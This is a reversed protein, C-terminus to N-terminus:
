DSENADHFADAVLAVGIIATLVIGGAILAGTPIGRGDDDNDRAALRRFDRGGISLRMPERGRLGLELGEGIRLRSEGNALRGHLAPAVTLGARLQRDGLNGGLPLRIRLGGFAGMRQDGNVELEAAMAPQAAALLQAGLLAGMTLMRM